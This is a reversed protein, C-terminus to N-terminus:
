EWYLNLLVSNLLCPNSLKSRCYVTYIYTYCDFDLFFFWVSQVALASCGCFVTLSFQHLFTGWKTGVFIAQLLKLAGTPGRWVLCMAFFQVPSSLISMQALEWQFSTYKDLATCLEISRIKVNMFTIIWPYKFGLLGVRNLILSLCCHLLYFRYIPTISFSRLFGGWPYPSVVRVVLRVQTKNLSFKLISQHRM